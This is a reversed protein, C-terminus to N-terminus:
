LGRGNVSHMTSDDAGRTLAISMALFYPSKM